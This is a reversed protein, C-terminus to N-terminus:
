TQLTKDNLHRPTSLLIRILMNASQISGSCVYVHMCIACFPLNWAVTFVNHWKCSCKDVISCSSLLPKTITDLTCFTCESWHTQKKAQSIQIWLEICKWDHVTQKGWKNTHTYAHKHIFIYMYINVYVYIYNRIQTEKHAQTYLHIHLEHTCGCTYVDVNAYAHVHVYESM